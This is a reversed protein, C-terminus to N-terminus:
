FLKEVKDEISNYLAAVAVMFTFDVSTGKFFYNVVALVVVMFILILM